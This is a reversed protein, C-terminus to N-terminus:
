GSGCEDVCHNENCDFYADETTTNYDEIMAKLETCCDTKICTDCADDEAEPLCAICVEYARGEDVCEGPLPDEDEDCTITTTAVCTVLTSAETGCDTLHAGMETSCDASCTAEDDANACNAAAINACAGACDLAGTGGGTGGTESGGTGGTASGASGGSNSDDDDGCAALGGLLLLAGTVM